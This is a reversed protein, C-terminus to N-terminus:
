YKGYNREISKAQKALKAKDIADYVYPLTFKKEGDVVKLIKLLSELLFCIKKTKKWFSTNLVLDITHSAVHCKRRGGMGYGIQTM